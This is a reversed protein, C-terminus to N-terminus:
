QIDSNAVHPLSTYFIHFLKLCNRVSFISWYTGFTLLKWVQFYSLQFLGRLLFTVSMILRFARNHVLNM